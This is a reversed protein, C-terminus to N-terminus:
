STRLNILFICSFSFCIILNGMIMALAMFVSVPLRPCMFRGVTMCPIVSLLDLGHEEAFELAMKETKTKSCVYSTGLGKSAKYFDTDTWSSEDMVNVDKDNFIVAVESSTYVVRTVTKSNLCAKLIGLTGEMARKSVIEEPESDQIDM